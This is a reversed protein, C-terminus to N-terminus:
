DRAAAAAQYQQLVHANAVGAAAEISCHVQGLQLQDVHRDGGVALGDWAM